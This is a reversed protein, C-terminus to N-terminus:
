GGSAAPMDHTDGAALLFSAPIMKDSSHVGRLFYRACAVM